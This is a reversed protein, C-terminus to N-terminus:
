VVCKSLNHDKITHHEYVVSCTGDDKRWKLCCAYLFKNIILVLFTVGLNLM